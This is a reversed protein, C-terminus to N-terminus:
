SNTSAMRSPEHADLMGSWRVTYRACRCLAHHPADGAPRRSDDQLPRGSDFQRSLERGYQREVFHLRVVVLFYSFYDLEEYDNIDINVINWKKHPEVRVQVHECQHGVPCATM